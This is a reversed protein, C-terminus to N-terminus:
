TKMHISRCTSNVVYMGYFNGCLESLFLTLMVDEQLTTSRMWWVLSPILCLLDWIHYCDGAIDDWNRSKCMFCNICSGRSFNILKLVTPAGILVNLLCANVTCRSQHHLEKQLQILIEESESWSTCLSWHYCLTIVVYEYFDLWAERGSQVDDESFGRDGEVQLPLEVLQWSPLSSIRKM